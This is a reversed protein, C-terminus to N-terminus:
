RQCVQRIDRIHNEFTDSFITIDDLYAWVTKGILGDLVYEMVRMATCPTNTDGQLMVKCAFTGFPTRITNLKEDEPAARIQFYWSSLDISSRYKARAVTRLIMSQNPITSDNKITIDNRPVVDALLRIEGNPKLKPFMNVPNNAECSYIIKKEKWDEIIQRYAPLIKDPVTFMKPSPVTKGKILNLHHNIQRLPPLETIKKSPFVDQFESIFNPTDSSTMASFRTKNAKKCTLTIGKEPFSIIANGCDIIANNATLFPMGLFIDYNDLSCVLADTKDGTENDMQILPQCKYNITSCSGKVAMKLLIPTDLDQTPIQFSSVFKGSILNDGMTGTNFLAKAKHGNVTIYAELARNENESPGIHNSTNTVEIPHNTEEQTHYSRRPKGRREMGGKRGNGRQNFGRNKHQNGPKLFCDSSYHGIKGCYYCAGEQRRREKEQPTIKNYQSIKNSSRQHHGQNNNRIEKAKPPIVANSVANSHQNRNGYLGTSHAIADRKEAIEVLEDFSTDVIIHHKVERKLKIDMADLLRQKASYDSITGQPLSDRLTELNIVTDTIQATKGNATQKVALWQEYITDTSTSPLFYGELKSKLGEFTKEGQSNDYQTFKELAKDRCYAGYYQLADQDTDQIGYSSIYRRVTNFWSNIRLPDRDKGEGTNFLPAPWKPRSSGEPPVSIAAPRPNGPPPPRPPAPPPQSPSSTRTSSPGPSAPPAPGAPALNQRPQEPDPKPAGEQHLQEQDPTEELDQLEPEESEELDQKNGPNRKQRPGPNEDESSSEYESSDEDQEQDQDQTPSLAPATPAVSPAAKKAPPAPKPKASASPAVPAKTFREQKDRPLSITAIQLSCNEGPTQELGKM